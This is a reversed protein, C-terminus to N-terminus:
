VRPVSNLRAGRLGAASTVWQFRQYAALTRAIGVGMGQGAGTVLAVRGTLEFM